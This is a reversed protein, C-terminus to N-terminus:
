PPGSMIGATQLRAAALIVASSATNRPTIILILADRNYNLKFAMFRRRYISGITSAILKTMIRHGKEESGSGCCQAWL